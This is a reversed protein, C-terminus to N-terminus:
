KGVKEGHIIDLSTCKSTKHIDSESLFSEMHILTKQYFSARPSTNTELHSVVFACHPATRPRSVLLCGSGQETNCEDEVAGVVWVPGRVTHSLTLWKCQKSCM